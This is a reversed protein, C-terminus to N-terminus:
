FLEKWVSTVTFASYLNLEKYMANENLFQAIPENECQSSNKSM